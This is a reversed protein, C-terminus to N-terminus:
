VNYLKKLREEEPTQDPDIIFMPADPMEERKIMIKEDIVGLIIFAYVDMHFIEQAKSIGEFRKDSFIADRRFDVLYYKGNSHKKRLRTRLSIRVANPNGLVGPAAGAGEKIQIDVIPYIPTPININSMTENQLQQRFCKESCFYAPFLTLWGGASGGHECNCIPCKMNM